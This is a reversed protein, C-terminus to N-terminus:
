PKRSKPFDYNDDCELPSGPGTVLQGRSKKSLQVHFECENLRQEDRPSSSSSCNAARCRAPIQVGRTPRAAGAAALEPRREFAVCYRRTARRTEVRHFARTPRVLALAACGPRRREARQLAAASRLTSVARAALEPRRRRRGRRLRDSSDRTAPERRRLPVGLQFGLEAFGGCFLKEHCPSLKMTFLLQPPRGPPCGARLLAARLCASRPQSSSTMLTLVIKISIERPDHRDGVLHGPLQGGRPGSLHGSRLGGLQHDGSLSFPVAVLADCRV